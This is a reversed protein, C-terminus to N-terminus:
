RGRNVTVRDAMMISTTLTLLYIAGYGIMRCNMVQWMLNCVGDWVERKMYGVGIIVDCQSTRQNLRAVEQEGFHFWM